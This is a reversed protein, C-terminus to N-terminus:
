AIDGNYSYALSELVSALSDSVSIDGRTSDLFDQGISNCADALLDRVIGYEEANDETSLLKRVLKLAQKKTM